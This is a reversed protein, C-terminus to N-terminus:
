KKKKGGMEPSDRTERTSRSEGRYGPLDQCIRAIRKADMGERAKDGSSVGEKGVSDPVRHFCSVNECMSRGENRAGHGRSGVAREQCEKRAKRVFM